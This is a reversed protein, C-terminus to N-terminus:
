GKVWIDPNTSNSFELSSEEPFIFRDDELLSNKINTLREIETTHNYILDNYYVEIEKDSHLCKFNPVVKITPIDALVNAAMILYSTSIFQDKEKKGQVLAKEINRNAHIIFHVRNEFVVIKRNKPRSLEFFNEHNLVGADKTYDRKEEFDINNSTTM